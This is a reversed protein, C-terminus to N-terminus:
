AEMSASMPPELRITKREIRLCTQSFPIITLPPRPTPASEDTEFAVTDGALPVPDVIPVVSSDASALHEEEEEDDD